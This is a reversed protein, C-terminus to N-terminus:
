FQETNGRFRKRGLQNSLIGIVVMSTAWVVLFLVNKASVVAFVLFSVILAVLLLIVVRVVYSCNEDQFSRMVEAICSLTYPIFMASTAMITLQLFESYFVKRTSLLIVITSIIAGAYLAIMPTKGAGSLRQLASPFFGLRAATRGLYGSILIYGNLAAFMCLVGALTIVMEGERGITKSALLLLPATSSTLEERPVVGVTAVMILLYLLCVFLTGLVTAKPVTKEPQSIVEISITASELGIFAWILLAAIPVVSFVQFPEPPPTLLSRDVQPLAVFLLIVLPIIKLVASVLQLRAAGVTTRVNLLTLLWIAAIAIIPVSQGSLGPFFVSVYYAFTYAVASNGIVISLWYSWAVIGGVNRGLSFFVYSIPGGSDPRRKALRAFVVALGMAICCAFFWPILVYSGITAMTAPLLFIGSGVMNGVVLSSCIGVGLKKEIGELHASISTHLKQESM